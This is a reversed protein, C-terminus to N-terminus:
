EEESGILETQQARQRMRRIFGPTNLGRELIYTIYHQMLVEMERETKESIKERAKLADRWSSRQFHRLYRLADMSVPILGTQGAAHGPTVVGGLSASFYQDVAQVPETSVVCEFLEPRFGLYDLLRMEYYRVVLDLEEESALRELTSVLLRYLPANEEEEYTFKDLLEVVYSAYSIRDLSERLANFTEIAEAQSVIFWARGTALQLNVRTFPEVHGAKRSKVKRVGKALARLKGAQRTYLTLMRDAEGQDWHKLVVADVRFSRM